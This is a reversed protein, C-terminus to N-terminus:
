QFSLNGAMDVNYRIIDIKSKLIIVFLLVTNNKYITHVSTHVDYIVQVAQKSLILFFFHVFLLYKGLISKIDVM